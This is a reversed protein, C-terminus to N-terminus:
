GLRREESRGLLVAFLDLSTLALLLRDRRIYSVGVLISGDSAHSTQASANLRRVALAAVLYLAAVLAFLGPASLTYILGGLAPGAISCIQHASSTAAVARPFEPASVQHPLMSPLAPASFARALGIVPLLLYIPAVSQASTVSLGALAAACLAQVLLSLATIRRRDFRDAAQGAFLAMAINPFFQTLGVYALSMPNHTAAYVHWVIAVSLIQSCLEDAACTTLYRRSPTM